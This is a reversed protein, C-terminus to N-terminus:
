QNQVNRYSCSCATDLNGLAKQSVTNQNWLVVSPSIDECSNSKPTTLPPPIWHTPWYLSNETDQKGKGQIKFTHQADRQTPTSSNHLWPWRLHMWYGCTLDRSRATPPSSNQSRRPPFHTKSIGWAHHMQADGPHSLVPLIPIKLFPQIYFPICNFSPKNVQRAAELQAYSLCEGCQHTICSHFPLFGPSVSHRTQM